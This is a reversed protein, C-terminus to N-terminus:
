SILNINFNFVSSDYGIRNHFLKNPGHGKHIFTFGIFVVSSFAFYLFNTNKRIFLKWKVTILWIDWILILDTLLFNLLDYKYAVHNRLIYLWSLNLKNAIEIIHALNQWNKDELLVSNSEFDMFNNMMNDGGVKQMKLFNNLKRNVSDDPIRFSILLLPKM